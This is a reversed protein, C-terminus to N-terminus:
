SDFRRDQNKRAEGFRVFFDFSQTEAGVIIQGFRKVTGFQQGTNLRHYATGFSMGVRHNPGAVDFDVEIGLGDADVAFRQVEGAFFVSNHFQQRQAFTRCEIFILKEIVQVAPNVLRFQFDDVNKDAFQTFLKFLSRAALVIDFRYPSASIHQTIRIFLESNEGSM